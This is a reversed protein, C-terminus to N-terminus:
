SPNRERTEKSRRTEPARSKGRPQTKEAPKAGPPVESAGPLGLQEIEHQEKSSVMLSTWKENSPKSEGRHYRPCHCRVHGGFLLPGDMSGLRIEHLAFAGPVIKGSAPELVTVTLRDTSSTWPTYGAPETWVDGPGKYLRTVVRDFGTQQLYRRADAPGYPHEREVKQIYEPPPALWVEFRGTGSAADYAATHKAYMAFRVGEYEVLGVVPWQTSEPVSKEPPVYGVIKNGRRLSVPEGDVFFVREFALEASVKPDPTGRGKGSRREPVPSCGPLGWQDVMVPKNSGRKRFGIWQESLPRGKGREYNPCTCTVHLATLLPGDSGGLRIEHLAFAKPVLKGNAPRYTSVVLRDTRKTWPAYGQPDVYKDGPGVYFRAVMRDFGTRALYAAADSPGYPHRREVEAIHEKPPGVWVEFHGSQSDPDYGTVHRAYMVFRVGEHEFWGVEPWQDSDPVQDTPPVYANIKSGRLLEPLESAGVGAASCVILIGIVLANVRFPRM